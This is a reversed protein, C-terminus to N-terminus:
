DSYSFSWCALKGELAPELEHVKQRLRGKALDAM